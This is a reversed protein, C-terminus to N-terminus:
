LYKKRRLFDSKVVLKGYQSEYKSNGKSHGGYSMSKAEQVQIKLPTWLRNDAVKKEFLKSLKKEENQRM